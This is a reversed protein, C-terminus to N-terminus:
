RGLAMLAAAVAAVVLPIVWLPTANGGEAPASPPPSRKARQPARAVPPQARLADKRARKRARALAPALTKQLALRAPSPGKFRLWLPATAVEREAFHRQLPAEVACVTACYPCVVRASDPADLAGGCQPCRLTLVRAGERVVTVPRPAPEDADRARWAELLAGALTEAHREPLTYVDRAGCADCRVLTKGAATHARLPAACRACLPCGVRVTMRVGGDAWLLAAAPGGIAVRQPLDDPLPCDPDPHRGDPPPWALDGVGHAERLGEAFSDVLVDQEYDCHACRYREGVDVGDVPTLLKCRDCRLAAEVRVWYGGDDDPPADVLRAPAACAPCADGHPLTGCRACVRLPDVM